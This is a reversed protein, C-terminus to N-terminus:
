QRRRLQSARKQDQKEAESHEAALHSRIKKRYWPRRSMKHVNASWLPVGAVPVVNSCFPVHYEGMFKTLLLCLKGLLIGTDYSLFVSSEVRRPLDRNVSKGNWGNGSESYVKTSCYKCANLIVDVVQMVTYVDNKRLKLRGIGFMGNIQCRAHYHVVILVILLVTRNVMEIIHFFDDTMSVVASSSHNNANDLGETFIYNIIHPKKNNSIDFWNVKLPSKYYLAAEQRVHGPVLIPQAFAFIYHICKIDAGRIGSNHEALLSQQNIGCVICTSITNIDTKVSKLINVLAFYYVLSQKYYDRETQAKQIHEAFTQALNLKEDETDAKLCM